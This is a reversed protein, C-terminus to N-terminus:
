SVRKEGPKETIASPPQCSAQWSSVQDQKLYPRRQESSLGHAKLLYTSLNKLQPRGCVPCTRSFKKPM